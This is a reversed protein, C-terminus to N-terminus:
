VGIERGCRDRAIRLSRRVIVEAVDRRYEATSRVDTIPKSEESALRAVDAIISDDPRKGLLLNEAAHCRMSVPAVAGLAIRITSVIGNELHIFVAVNVKALDMDVRTIRAFASGSGSQSHPLIIQTVLEDKSLATKGPGLFFKELPLTRKGSKSLMEVRADLALLAVSGDAAPSANCINGGLTAMHRIQISGIAAVADCLIPARQRVLDSHEVHIVKTASGICLSTEDDTIFSLDDIKSINILVRPETLRQKMKIFIDTGGSLISADSSHQELLDLAESLTRPEAYQFLVPVIRTNTETIGM